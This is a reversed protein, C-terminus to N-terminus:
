HTTSTSTDRTSNRNIFTDVESEIYNKLNELTSRESNVPAVIGNNMCGSCGRVGCGMFTLVIIYFGLRRLRVPNM